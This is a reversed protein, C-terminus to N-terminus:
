QYNKIKREKLLFKYGLNAGVAWTFEDEEGPDVGFKEKFAVEYGDEKWVNLRLRNTPGVYFGENNDKKSFYWKVNTILTLSYRDFAILDDENTLTDLVISETNRDIQLLNELGVDERLSFEHFVTGFTRQVFPNYLDVSIDHKVQGKIIAPSLFLILVFFAFLNKM